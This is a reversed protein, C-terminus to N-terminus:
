TGYSLFIQCTSDGCCPLLTSFLFIMFLIFLNFHLYFCEFLRTGEQARLNEGMPYILEPLPSFDLPYFGTVVLIVSRAKNLVVMIAKECVHAGECQCVCQCVSLCVSACACVCLHRVWVVRPSRNDGRTETRWASNSKPFELNIM